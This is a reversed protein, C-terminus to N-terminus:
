YDISIDPSSCEPGAATLTMAGAAAPKVITHITEPFVIAPVRVVEPVACMMFVVEPGPPANNLHHAQM